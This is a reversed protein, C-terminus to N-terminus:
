SIAYYGKTVTAFHVSTIEIITNTNGETVYQNNAQQDALRVGKISTMSKIVKDIDEAPVFNERVIVVSYYDIRDISNKKFGSWGYVIYNLEKTEEIFKPTALGYFTNTDVENLKEYITDKLEKNLKM